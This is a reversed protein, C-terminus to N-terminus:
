RRLAFTTPRQRPNQGGRVAPSISSWRIALRKPRGRRCAADNIVTSSRERQPRKKSQSSRRSERSWYRVADMTRSSRASRIRLVVGGPLDKRMGDRSSQRVVNPSGVRGACRLWVGSCTRPNMASGRLSRISSWLCARFTAIPRATRGGASLSLFCGGSCGCVGM